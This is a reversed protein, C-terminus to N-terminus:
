FLIEAESPRGERHPNTRLVPVAQMGEGQLM